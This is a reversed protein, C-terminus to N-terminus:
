ANVYPPSIRGSHVIDPSISSVVRMIDSAQLLCITKKKRTVIAPAFLEDLDLFM